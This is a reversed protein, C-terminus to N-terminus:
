QLASVVDAHELHRCITGCGLRLASLLLSVVFPALVAASLGLRAAIAAALAAAAAATSQDRLEAWRQRLDSYEASNTCLFSRFERAADNLLHPSALATPIPNGFAQRLESESLGELLDM